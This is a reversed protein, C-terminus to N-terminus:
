VWVLPPFSHDKWVCADLRFWCFYPSPCFCFLIWPRVGSCNLIFALRHWRGEIRSQQLDGQLCVHLQLWRIHVSVRNEEKSPRAADQGKHSEMHSLAQILELSLVCKGTQVGHHRGNVHLLNRTHHLSTPSLFLCYVAPALDCSILSSILNIIVHPFFADSQFLKYPLRFKRGHLGDHRRMTHIIYGTFLLSSNAGVFVESLLFSASWRCFFVHVLLRGRSGEITGETCARVFTRM